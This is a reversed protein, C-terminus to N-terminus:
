CCNGDNDGCCNGSSLQTLPVQHGKTERADRRRDLSCDFLQAGDDPVPQEPELLYFHQSIGQESLMQFTKECVAMPVGRPYTGGDDDIVKAFPGRYIAAQNKELCVDSFPKFALLTVSRFEIGEVTQWPEAQRKDIQVGQFGAQCFEDTFRDERWAGSICGSWLQPNNQMAHPVDEDSVIDSIAARGGPKLVRFIEQFLQKRDSHRVLNLVCNSVVCDVSNDPIMPRKQRLEDQLALMDIAYEAGESEIQKMEAALVELEIALDQIRGCRFEINRYGIKEAVTPEHQRALDLMDRNVDVGIVKGSKGVLQSIIFCLKGGGSGLDVVTDGERVYPSPDGCGYDREIVEQPIVELYQTDYTVPCCLAPEAQQSAASYRQRVSEDSPHDLDETQTSM